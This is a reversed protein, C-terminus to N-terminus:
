FILGLRKAWFYYGIWYFRVRNTETQEVGSKMRFYREPTPQHIIEWLREYAEDETGASCFHEIASSTLELVVDYTEPTGPSMEIKGDRKTLSFPREDLFVKFAAGEKLYRNARHGWDNNLFAVLENLVAEMKEEPYYKKSIYLSKKM